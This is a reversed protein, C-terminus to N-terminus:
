ELLDYQELNDKVSAVSRRRMNPGPQREDDSRDGEYVGGRVPEMYRDYADIVESPTDNIEPPAAGLKDHPHREMQRGGFDPQNMTFFGPFPRRVFVAPAIKIGTASNLATPWRGAGHPHTAFYVWEDNVLYPGYATYPGPSGGKRKSTTHTEPVLSIFPREVPQGVAFVYKKLENAFPSRTSVRIISDSRRDGYVATVRQYQRLWGDNITQWLQSSRDTDKFRPDESPPPDVPPLIDGIFLENAKPVIDERFWNRKTNDLRRPFLVAEDYRFRWTGHTTTIIRFDPDDPDPDNQIIYHRLGHPIQKRVEIGARAEWALLTPLGM